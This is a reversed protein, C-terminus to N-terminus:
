AAETVKIGNERALKAIDDDTAKEPIMVGAEFLKTAIDLKAMAPITIPKDPDRVKAFCEAPIDIDTISQPIKMGTPLYASVRAVGYRERLRNLEEARDRDVHGVVQIDRIPFQQPDDSGGAPPHLNMLIFAEAPTLADPGARVVTTLKTDGKENLTVTCQILDFRM